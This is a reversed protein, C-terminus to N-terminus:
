RTASTFLDLLAQAGQQPTIVQSAILHEYETLHAKIRPNQYFKETLSQAISDHLWYLRQAQRKADFYGKEQTFQRYKLIMAWIEEIGTNELASCILVDPVWGSETPPFLHLAGQFEVQAQRTKRQNDGDAKTIAILDAMEMIGRKMGQLDDGAGAIMLLLFFDVMGHVVTESQGVGVTEVFIVEFGAAECLLMTERTRRAVGGLSAQSPTPRIYALPDISLQEMRTKDGMISGKSRQSSPDVALVALKKGQATIHKGLTEIFTSKGVGPIGTIGVRVSRGTHPLIKALIGQALDRDEPQTSEIVTIAQSLLIRDHRLIGAIYEALSLRLKKRSMSRLLAVTLCFYLVIKV